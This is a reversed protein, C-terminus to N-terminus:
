KRRECNIRSTALRSSTKMVTRVPLPRKKLAYADSVAGKQLCSALLCIEAAGIDGDGTSGLGAYVGVLLPKLREDGVVQVDGLSEVGVGLNKHGGKVPGCDAEACGENAERVEDVGGRM